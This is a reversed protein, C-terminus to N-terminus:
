GEVEIGVFFGRYEKSNVSGSDKGKPVLYPGLVQSSEESIM